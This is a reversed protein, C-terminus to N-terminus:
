EHQRLRPKKPFRPRLVATPGPSSSSSKEMFLIKRRRSLIDSCNRESANLIRFRALKPSGLAVTKALVDPTGLPLKPCMVQVAVVERFSCNARLSIKWVAVPSTDWSISFSVGGSGIGADQTGHHNKRRDQERKSQFSLGASRFREHDCVRGHDINDAAATGILGIAIM